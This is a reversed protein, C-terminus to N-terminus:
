GAHQSLKPVQPGHPGEGGGGGGGGVGAGGGGVGGGPVPAQQLGFKTAAPFTRPVIHAIM